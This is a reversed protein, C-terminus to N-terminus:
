RTGPGSPSPSPSPAPQGSGEDVPPPAPAVVGTCTMEDPNGPTLSLQRLEEAPVSVELASDVTATAFVNLSGPMPAGAHAIKTLMSSSVTESGTAIEGRGWKMVYTFDVTIPDPNDIHCLDLHQSHKAVEISQPSVLWINITKTDGQKLELHNPSASTIQYDDTKGSQDLLAVATCDGQRAAYFENTETFSGEIFQFNSKTLMSAYRARGPADVNIDKTYRRASIDKPFNQMKSFLKELSLCGNISVENPNILYSGGGSGNGGDKSCAGMALLCAIALTRVAWTKM